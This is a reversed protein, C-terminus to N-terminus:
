GQDDTWRGLQEDYTWRGAELERVFRALWDSFSKAQLYRGPEDHCFRIM